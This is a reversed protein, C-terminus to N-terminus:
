LAAAGPAIDLRFGLPAHRAVTDVRAVGITVFAIAFVAGVAAYAAMLGILLQAFGM